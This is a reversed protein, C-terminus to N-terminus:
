LSTIKKLLLNCSYNYNGTSEKHWELIIGRNTFHINLLLGGNPGDAAFITPIFSDGKQIWTETEYPFNSFIHLTKTDDNYKMQITLGSLIEMNYYMMNIKDDIEGNIIIDVKYTGDYDTLEIEDVGLVHYDPMEKIRIYEKSEIADSSPEQSVSIEKKECGILFIGLIIMAIIAKM